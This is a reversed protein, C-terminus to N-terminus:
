EGKMFVLWITKGRRQGFLPQQEITKLLDGTSIQQENWKFILTGHPKLVRLCEAFGQKIDEQWNEGLRGYKKALWSNDGARRLHPPDFLVLYFSEDEFPMARFDGVLDPKIELTRDDAFHYLGQRNDMFVANPNDKNFWCMRGGCCADLIIKKDMAKM